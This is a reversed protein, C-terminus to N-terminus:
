FCKPYAAILRSLDGGDIVGYYIKQGGIAKVTASAQMQSIISSDIQGGYVVLFLHAPEEFLRLIQDGNKGMKAPVLKGKTGGGKFAFAAAVRRGKLRLYTTFLDSKEGGWDKFFGKEGIIKKFGNKIRQESLPKIRVPKQSNVKSFSDIRDITILEANRASKPFQISVRLKNVDIRPSIKTPFRELKKKNRALELIMRYRPSFEERKRYGNPVKDILLRAIKGGEQLVRVRPFGASQAIEGITKIQKKGRYIAEFVAQRQKSRRLLRAAAAIQDNFSSLTDTVPLPLTNM